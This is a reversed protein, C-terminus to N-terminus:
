EMSTLRRLQRTLPNVFNMTRRRACDVPTLAEVPLEDVAEIGHTVALVRPM